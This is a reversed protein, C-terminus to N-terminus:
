TIVQMQRSWCHSHTSAPAASAAFLLPLTLTMIITFFTRMNFLGSASYFKVVNVYYEPFSTLSTFHKLDYHFTAIQDNEPDM